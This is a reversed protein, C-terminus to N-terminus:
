GVATDMLEKDRFVLRARYGLTPKVAVVLTGDFAANVNASLVPDHAGGFRQYDPQNLGLRTPYIQATERAYMGASLDMSGTFVGSAGLQAEINHYPGVELIGVHTGKLKQKQLHTPKSCRQGKGKINLGGLALGTRGFLKVFGSQFNMRASADVHVDLNFQPKIEHMYGYAERMKFNKLSGIFSFGYDLDSSYEGKVSVELRADSIGVCPKSAKYLLQDFQTAKHTALRSGGNLLQNFKNAWNQGSSEDFWRKDRVRWDTSAHSSGDRKSKGPPAKVIADWYGAHNSFDARFFIEGTSDARLRSFDYDFRFDYTQHDANSNNLHSLHAPL